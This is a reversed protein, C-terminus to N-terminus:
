RFVSLSASQTLIGITGAGGATVTGSNPSDITGALTAAVGGNTLDQIGFAPTVIADNLVTGTANLDADYASQAYTFSQSSSNLDTPNSLAVAATGPTTVGAAITPLVVATLGSGSMSVEAGKAEVEAMAPNVVLQLQNSYTTNVETGAQAPSQLMPLLSALGASAILIPTFRM